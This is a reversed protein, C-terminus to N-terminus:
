LLFTPKREREVSLWVASVKEEDAELIAMLSHLLAWDAHLSTESVSIRSWDVLAAEPEDIADMVEALNSHEGLLKPLRHAPDEEQSAISKLFSGQSLVPLPFIILVRRAVSSLWFTAEM